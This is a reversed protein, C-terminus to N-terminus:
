VAEPLTTAKLPPVEVLVVPLAPDLPLVELVQLPPVEVLVLLAAELVEVPPLEVVLVQVAAVVV